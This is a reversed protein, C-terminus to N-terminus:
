PTVGLRSLPIPKLVKSKEDKALIPPRNPNFVWVYVTGELGVKSWQRVKNKNKDGRVENLYNLIKQETDLSGRLLAGGVLKTDKIATKDTLPLRDKPPESGKIIRVYEAARTKGAEDGDGYLFGMPLKKERGVLTLWNHLGNGVSMRGGLAPTMSLWVAAYESKGEPDEYPPGIRPGLVNPVVTAICRSWESALWMAGLAAGDEAGILILSHSNCVGADNRDDLFMKAAAIDNVLYPLYAPMFDKQEITDKPKGNRDLAGGRIWKVNWPFVRQDWFKSDVATSRGHGRFDFSLVSYGKDQLKSALGKWGDKNSGSGIKHLLLITPEDRGKPSAYFSGRLTVGDGTEFQVETPKDAAGAPGAASWAFLALGLLLGLPRRIRSSRYM